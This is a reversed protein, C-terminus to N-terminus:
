FYGVVGLAGFEGTTGSAHQHNELMKVGMKLQVAGQLKLYPTLAVHYSYSACVRETHADWQEISTILDVQ